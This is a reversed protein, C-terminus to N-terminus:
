SEHYRHLFYCSYQNFHFSQRDLIVPIINYQEVLLFAAGIGNVLSFRMSNAWITEFAEKAAM